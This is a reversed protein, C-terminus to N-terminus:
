DKEVSLTAAFAEGEKRDTFVKLGSGTRYVLYYKANEAAIHKRFLLDSTSSDIPQGTHPDGIRLQMLSHQDRWLIQYSFDEEKKREDIFSYLSRFYATWPASRKTSFVNFEYVRIGNLVGGFVLVMVLALMVGKKLQLWEDLLTFLIYGAITLFLCIPYFHYISNVMYSERGEQLTRGLVMMLIYGLALLLNLVLVHLWVRDQSSLHQMREKLERRRKWIMVFLAAVVGAVLTVLAVNLMLPVPWGKMELFQRPTILVFSTRPMSFLMGFYPAFPMSVGMAIMELVSKFFLGTSSALDATTSSAEASKSAYRLYYDLLNVYVYGGVPLLLVAPKLSQWGKRKQPDKTVLRRDVILMFSMVMCCIVGFEYIFIAPTLYIVSLWLHKDKASQLYFMYEQCALLLFVLFLLYGSIHHWIVMEAIIMLVSFSGVWLGSIFHPRILLFLRLLLGLVVLHWLFGVIQWPVFHYGFLWKQLSLQTYFLPRFLLRDGTLLLRNRCYSYSYNIIDGLSELDATEILYVLQDARANHFFSPYFVVTNILIIGLLAAWFYKKLVTPM